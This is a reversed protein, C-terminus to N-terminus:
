EDSPEQQSSVVDAFIQRGSRLRTYATPVPTEMMEAIEPVSREELEHMVFVARVVDPMKNLAVELVRNADRHELAAPPEAGPEPASEQAVEASHRRLARFDSVLRTAIGFLWPRAPRTSDFTSWRKHATLFVDHVLDEVDSSSIGLRCVFRWVADFEARYVQELRELALPPPASQPSHSELRLSM